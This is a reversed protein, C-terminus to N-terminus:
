LCYHTGFCKSKCVFKHVLLQYPCIYRSIIYFKFNHQGTRQPTQWLPTWAHSCITRSIILEYCHKSLGKIFWECSPCDRFFVDVYVNTLRNTIVDLSFHNTGSGSIVELSTYSPCHMVYRHHRFTEPADAPPLLSDAVAEAAEVGSVGAM